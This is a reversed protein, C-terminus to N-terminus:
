SSELRFAVPVLVWADIAEDGRRAPVFRWAKIANLAARDLADSGSSTFLAVLGPTGAATVLVKLTVTGEIGDRRARRPYAPPPNNLYNARFQPPTTPPPATPPAATPVLTTAPLTAVVDLERALEKSVAVPAAVNSAGARASRTPSPPAQPPKVAVTESRRTLSRKVPVAERAQEPKATEYAVEAPMARAARPAARGPADVTVPRASEEPEDAATRAPARLTAHIQQRVDDTGVAVPPVLGFAAVHIGLSAALSAVVIRLERPNCRDVLM